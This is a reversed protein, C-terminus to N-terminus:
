SPNNPKTKQIRQIIIEILKRLKRPRFPKNIYYTPGLDALEDRMIQKRSIASLLVVPLLQNRETARLTRILQLGDVKPMLFDTVVLDVDEKQLLSLAEQGDRAEIVFLGKEELIDRLMKRIPMDDDCLLARTSM